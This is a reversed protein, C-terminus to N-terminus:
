RASTPVSSLGRVHWAVSSGSIGLGLRRLYEKTGRILVRIVVSPGGLLWFFKKRELNKTM